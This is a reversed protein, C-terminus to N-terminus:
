ICRPTANFGISKVHSRCKGELKGQLSLYLYDTVARGVTMMMMMM